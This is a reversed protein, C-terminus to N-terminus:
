DIYGLERLQELTADDESSRTVNTDGMKGWSAIHKMPWAKQFEASFLEIWPRGDFDEAIPLNLGYLLTPTIDHIDVGAASVSPNIDPGWAIFIGPPSEPHTGTVVATRGIPGKIKQGKYVLVKSVDDANPTVELILDAEVEDDSGNPERFTFIRGGNDFTVGNLTRQLEALKAAKDKETLTGGEDRGAMCLRLKKKKANTPSLHTYVTSKSCDPLTTGKQYTLLGMAVFLENSDLTLKIPEDPAAHFGHDSVIFFNTNKPAAKIIQGIAKDTAVYKEPVKSGYKEMGAETVNEFAEPEWWKWYKHSVADTGRFYALILDHQQESAFKKAFHLTMRDEPAFDAGGKFLVQESNVVSLEQEFAAQWSAPSVRRELDTQGKETIIHGNIEEAPWSAWWSLVAARRDVTSLMNWVAPVKRLTASFPVDGEETFITFAEIGHKTDKMGTAITTWIVPSMGYHSKLPARVGEESMRKLNPLKGEAWLREIVSWEGGDMGILIIPNPKADGAGVDSALALATLGLASCALLLKKM